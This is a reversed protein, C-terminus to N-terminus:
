FSYKESIKRNVMVNKQNKTLEVKGTSQL